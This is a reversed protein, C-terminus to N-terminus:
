KKFSKCLIKNINKSRKFNINWKFFSNNSDLSVLLHSKPPIITSSYIYKKMWKVIEHYFMLFQFFFINTWVQLSHHVFMWSQRIKKIYLYFSIQINKLFIKLIDSYHHIFYIVLYKCFNWRISSRETFVWFFSSPLHSSIQLSYITM